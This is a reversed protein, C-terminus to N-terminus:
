VSAGLLGPVAALVGTRIARGATASLAFRLMGFQAAGAALSVAFFPPVSALASAFILVDGKVGTRRLKELIQSSPRRRNVLREAAAYTLVKGLVQGATAVAILWPLQSPRAVTAVAVVFLDANLFPVAGGAVCVGFVLLLM